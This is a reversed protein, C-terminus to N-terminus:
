GVLRFLWQTFTAAVGVVEFRWGTEELLEDFAKMEHEREALEDFYVLAGPVLLPRLAQLATAASSYLDVDVNVLVRDHPPPDFAPLTDQLWGAVFRVREDDIVPVRGHTTFHGRPNEAPSWSEPLGEFSDFGVLAADHGRLRSSWWRMSGGEFVGLEVYLIRGSAATLERAALEFLAERDRVVPEPRFGRRDLWRGFALFSVTADLLM